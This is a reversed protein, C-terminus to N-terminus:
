NRWSLGVAKRHAGGKVRNFLSVKWNVKVAFWDFIICISAWPKSIVPQAWNEFM